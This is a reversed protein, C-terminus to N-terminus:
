LTKEDRFRFAKSGRSAGGAEAVERMETEIEIEIETEMEIETEIGIETEMEKRQWGPGRDRDSDSERKPRKGSTERPPRSSDRQAQVDSDVARRNRASSPSRNRRAFIDASSILLSAILILNLFM